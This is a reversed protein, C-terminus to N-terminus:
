KVAFFSGVFGEPLPIKLVFTFIGFIASAIVFSVALRIWINKQGLLIMVVYLFLLTALYFGLLKMSFVYLISIILTGAVTILGPKHIREMNALAKGRLAQVIMAASTLFFLVSLVQPFFNPGYSSFGRGSYREAYWYICVSLFCLAIGICLDIRKSDM